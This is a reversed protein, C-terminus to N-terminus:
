RFLEDQDLMREAISEPNISYSGEAIARKIEEVKSSNVDPSSNIASELKSMSQAASSLSVEGAASDAPKAVSEEPASKRGAAQTEIRGKAGGSSSLINTNTDIVMAAIGM